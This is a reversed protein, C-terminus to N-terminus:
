LGFIASQDVLSWGSVILGDKFQFENFYTANIKKGQSSSGTLHGRLVVKDGDGLTDEITYQLNKVFSNASRLSATVRAKFADVGPADNPDSPVFDPSVLQDIAAVNGKNWVENIYNTAATKNVEQASPTAAMTPMAVGIATLGALSLVSRRNM